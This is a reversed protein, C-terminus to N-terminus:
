KEILDALSISNLASQIIRNLKRWFNRALCNKSRPCFGFFCKALKPKGELVEIIKKMKIRKPNGALSYGGGFGKKSKILGSKELKAMIKELYNFPINEKKSIEKLSIFEKKGKALFIIARLGYQAKTSIRM